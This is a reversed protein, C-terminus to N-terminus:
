FLEIDVSTQDEERRLLRDRMHIPHLAELRSALSAHSEEHCTAALQLADAVLKVSQTIGDLEQLQGFDRDACACSPDGLATQIAALHMAIRQLEDACLGALKAADIPKSSM